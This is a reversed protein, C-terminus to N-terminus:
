NLIGTLLSELGFVGERRSLKELLEINEDSHEVERSYRKAAELIAAMREKEGNEKWLTRATELIMLTGIISFKMKSHAEEDYVAGCFYTFIFYVMLHETIIELDAEEDPERWRKELAEDEVNAITKKLLEPWEERLVELKDFQELMGKKFACAKEPKNLYPHLRKAFRTKAGEKTYREFVDEMAITHGRYVRAQLDHTFALAMAMREKMPRSRDQLIRIIMERADVLKSYLFFDFDEYIDEKYKKEVTIFTVPEKPMLILKAAEPCSMALSIERVNEFEEFHRPYTKCTRCFMQPGAETYIDCLNNEDLFACRKDEYQKFVGERWDISNALRNGFPGEFKHYKELTDEDIVIQWGACWTDPCKDATCKFKRYYHPVRIEM